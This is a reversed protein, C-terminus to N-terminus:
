RTLIESFQEKRIYNTEEILNVEKYFRVYPIQDNNWKSEKFVMFENHIDSKNYEFVYLDFDLEKSLDYIWSKMKGWQPCWDQTLVAVVKKYSAKIEDSFEGNKVAYLAQESTMNEQKM